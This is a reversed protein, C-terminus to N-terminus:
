KKNEIEAIFSNVNYNDKYCFKQTPTHVYQHGQYRM